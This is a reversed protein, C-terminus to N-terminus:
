SCQYDQYTCGKTKHLEKHCQKCLTIVNSLDNQELPSQTVGQIHHCHLQAEKITINCHQCTYQDRKFCLQRLLPDVERSSAPKFGLSYKQKNYIPCALKCTNNDCYIRCEGQGINNCSKIRSQIQNITPRILKGCYACLVLVYGEEDKIIEEYISLEKIAPHTYKIFSQDYEKKYAKKYTTIKTQNLEVYKKNYKLLKEKNLEWYIKHTQTIKEKNDRQYKKICAKCQNQKGDKSKKNNSFEDLLKEIKCKHCIKTAM